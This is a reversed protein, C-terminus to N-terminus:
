GPSMSLSDQAWIVAVAFDDIALLDARVYRSDGAALSPGVKVLIV